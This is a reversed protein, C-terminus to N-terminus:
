GNSSSSSSHWGYATIHGIIHTASKRFVPKVCRGGRVRARRKRLSSLFARSKRSASTSAPVIIPPRGHSTRAPSLCVVSVACCLLACCLLANDRAKESLHMAPKHLTNYASPALMYIISARITQSTYLESARDTWRCLPITRRREHERASLPLERAHLPKRSSAALCARKLHALAACRTYHLASDALRQRRVGLAVIAHPDSDHVITTHLSVYRNTHLVIDSVGGVQLFLM